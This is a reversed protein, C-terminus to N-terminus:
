SKKLQPSTDLSSAKGMYKYMNETRMMADNVCLIRQFRQSLHMCICSGKVNCHRWLSRSPTEFWWRRSQIILQKNLHMDFFVDLTRTVLWYRAFHNWQFVDDHHMYVHNGNADYWWWRVTHMCLCSCKFAHFGKLVLLIRDGDWRLFHVIGVPQGM